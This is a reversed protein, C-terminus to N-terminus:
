MREKGNFRRETIPDTNGCNKELVFVSRDPNLESYELAEKCVGLLKGEIIWDSNKLDAVSEGIFAVGERNKLRKELPTGLFIGFSAPYYRIGM